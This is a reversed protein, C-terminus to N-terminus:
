KFGESRTLVVIIKEDIWSGSVSYNKEDIWSGSVRVKSSDLNLESSRTTLSFGNLEKELLLLSNNRFPSNFWWLWSFIKMKPSLHLEDCVNSDRCLIDLNKNFARSVFKIATSCWSMKSLNFLNRMQCAIVRWDRRRSLPMRASLDSDM